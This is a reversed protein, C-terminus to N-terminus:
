FGPDLLNASHAFLRDAFMKRRRATIRDSLEDAREALLRAQKLAGDVERQEAAFRSREAALTADESGGAAPAAGLQALRDTVLKLRPELAAARDRVQDRLPTLLQKLAALGDESQSDEDFRRAMDDLEAKFGDLEAKFGDLDAAAPRAATAPRGARCGPARVAGATARRRLRRGAGAGGRAARRPVM